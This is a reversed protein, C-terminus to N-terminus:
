KAQSLIKYLHVYMLASVPMAVFVGVGLCLVGLLYLGVVAFVMKIIFSVHGETLDWSKYLADLITTKEELLIMVAFSSRMMYYYLLTYIMILIVLMAGVLYLGQPLTLMSAIGVFLTCPLMMLFLLGIAKVTENFSVNFWSLKRGYVIDLLNLMYIFGYVMGVLMLIPQVCWILRVDMSQSELIRILGYTILSNVISLVITGTSLLLLAVWHKKFDLWSTAFISRVSLKKM